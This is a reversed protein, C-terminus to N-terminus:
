VEESNIEEDHKGTIIEHCLTICEDCIYVGQGSVLKNVQEQDAGCFSCHLKKTINLKVLEDYKKAKEFMLHLANEYEKM